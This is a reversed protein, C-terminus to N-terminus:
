GCANEQESPVAHSPPNCPEGKLLRITEEDEADPTHNDLKRFSSAPFASDPCPDADEAFALWLAAEGTVKNTGEGLDLVTYVGGVTPVWFGPDHEQRICLALDGIEWNDAM